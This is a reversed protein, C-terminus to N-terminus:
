SCDNDIVGLSLHIERSSDDIENIVTSIQEYPMGCFEEMQFVGKKNHRLKLM